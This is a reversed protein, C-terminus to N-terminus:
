ALIYIALFLTWQLKKTSLVSRVPQESKYNREMGYEKNM